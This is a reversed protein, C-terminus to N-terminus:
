SRARKDIAQRAIQEAALAFRTGSDATFALNGGQCQHYASVLAVGAGKLVQAQRLQRAHAIQSSTYAVFGAQLALFVTEPNFPLFTLAVSVGLLLLPLALITLIMVLYRKVEAELQQWSPWPELLNALLWGAIASIGSASLAYTLFTKLDM